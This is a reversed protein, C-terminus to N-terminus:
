PCKKVRGRMSQAYRARVEIISYWKHSPSEPRPNLLMAALRAKENYSLESLMRGYEIICAKTVGTARHGFYANDMYCKMIESKTFRFNVLLALIMEYIKRRFTLDKYNTLTRVMQMNITSAGGYKRFTIMKLIERIISIIDIGRHKLYRRDELAMVLYDFEDFVYPGREVISTIDMIDRNLKILLFRLSLYTKKNRPFDISKM